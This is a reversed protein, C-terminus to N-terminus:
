QDYGCPICRVFSGCAPQMRVRTQLLTTPYPRVSNRAAAIASMLETDPFEILHMSIIPKTGLLQGNLARCASAGDYFSVELAACAQEEFVRM